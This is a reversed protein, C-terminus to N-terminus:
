HTASLIILYFKTEQNTWCVFVIQNHIPRHVLFLFFDLKIIKGKTVDSLLALFLIGKMINELFYNVQIWWVNALFTLIGSCWINWYFQFIHRRQFSSYEENQILILAVWNNERFHRLWFSFCLFLIRPQLLKNLISM